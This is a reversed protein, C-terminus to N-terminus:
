AILSSQIRKLTPCVAQLRGFDLTNIQPCSHVNLIELAGCFSLASKLEDEQLMTCALLQLNALRPCDLKLIELSNCNSLNLNYLNSCKLDVELVISFKLSVIRVRGSRKPRTQHLILPSLMLQCTVPGAITQDVYWNMCTR